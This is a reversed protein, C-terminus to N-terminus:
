RQKLTFFQDGVRITAPAEVKTPTHPSIQSEAGDRIVFTGNLSGYDEAWLVGDKDLSFAVHNRSVTRTPDEVKIAHAGEPVQSPKRGLLVGATIVIDQGTMTNHLEYSRSQQRHMFDHALVTGDWDDIDGDAMPYRVAPQNDPQNDVCWGPEPPPPYPLASM